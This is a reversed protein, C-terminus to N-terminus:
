FFGAHLLTNTFFRYFILVPNIKHLSCVIGLDYIKDSSSMLPSPDGGGGELCDGYEGKGKPDGRPIDLM